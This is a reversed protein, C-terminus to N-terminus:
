ITVFLDVAVSQDRSVTPEAHVLAKSMRTATHDGHPMRPWVFFSLGACSSGPVVGSRGVGSSGMGASGPVSGSCSGSVAGSGGVM